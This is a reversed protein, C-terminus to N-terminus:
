ADLLERMKAAIEEAKRKSIFLRTMKEVDATARLLDKRDPRAAALIELAQAAHEGLEASVIARLRELRPPAPPPAVTRLPAPTASARIRLRRVVQTLSMALLQANAPTTCLVLLWSRDLARLTVHGDAYRLDLAAQEGVMWEQFFADASLQSALRQLDSADFLPPFASAVVAGARDFVMSGVVGPVGGLQQLSAQQMPTEM